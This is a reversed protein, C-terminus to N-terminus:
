WTSPCTVPVHWLLTYHMMVFGVQSGNLWKNGAVGIEGVVENGKIPWWRLVNPFLHIGGFCVLTKWLGKM